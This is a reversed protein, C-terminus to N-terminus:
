IWSHLLLKLLVLMIVKGSYKGPYKGIRLNRSQTCRKAGENQFTLEWTIPILLWVCLKEFWSSTWDYYNYLFALSLVSNGNLSISNSWKFKILIWELFWVFTVPMSCSSNKWKYMEAGHVVFMDWECLQWFILIILHRM